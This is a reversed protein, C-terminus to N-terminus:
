VCVSDASLIGLLASLLEWLCPRDGLKGITDKNEVASFTLSSLVCVRTEFFLKDFWACALQSRLFGSFSNRDNVGKLRLWFTEWCIPFPNYNDYLVM